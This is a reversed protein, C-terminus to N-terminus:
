KLSAILSSSRVYLITDTLQSALTVIQSEIGISNFSPLAEARWNRELTESAASPRMKFLNWHHHLNIQPKCNSQEGLWSPVQGARIETENGIPLDTTILHLGAIDEEPLSQIISRMSYLLENHNRFQHM